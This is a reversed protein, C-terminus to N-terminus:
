VSPPLRSHLLGCWFALAFDAANRASRGTHVVRLRKERYLEALEPLQVIPM